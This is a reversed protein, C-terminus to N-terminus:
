VKKDGSNNLVGITNLPNPIISGSSHKTFRIFSKAKAKKICKVGNFM